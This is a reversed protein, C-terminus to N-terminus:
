PTASAPAPVASSSSCQWGGQHTFVFRRGQAQGVSGAWFDIAELRRRLERIVGGHTVTLVRRHGERLATALLETLWAELRARLAAASEGGPPAQEGRSDIWARYAPQDKLEAYCRGEYDGFDLERLRPDLRTQREDADFVHALTQRCRTLDSCHVADFPEGALHDRLRAMDGLAEPLLLPIDRQGQYRREQNWATLGHRVVVLELCDAAAM